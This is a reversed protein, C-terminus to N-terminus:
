KKLTQKRVGIKYKTKEQNTQLGLKRAVNEM